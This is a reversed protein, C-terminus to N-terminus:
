GNGKRTGPHQHHKSLKEPSIKGNEYIAGSERMFQFIAILEGYWFAKEGAADAKRMRRSCFNTLHTFLDHIDSSGKSGHEQYSNMVFQKFDAYVEKIDRADPKRPADEAKSAILLHRLQYYGQVIRNEAFLPHSIIAELNILKLEPDLLPIQHETLKSNLQEFELRKCDMDLLSIITLLQLQDLAPQYAASDPLPRTNAIHIHYERELNVYSELADISM